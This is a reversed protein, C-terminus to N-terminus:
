WYMLKVFILYNRALWLLSTLASEDLLSYNNKIQTFFAKENIISRWYKLKAYTVNYKGCPMFNKSLHNMAQPSRPSSLAALRDPVSLSGRRQYRRVLKMSTRLSKCITRLSFAENVDRFPAASQSRLSKDRSPALHRVASLAFTSYKHSVTKNILSSACGHVSASSRCWIGDGRSCDERLSM